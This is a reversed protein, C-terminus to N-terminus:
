ICYFVQKTFLDMEGRGQLLHLQVARIYSDYWFKNSKVCWNCLNLALDHYESSLLLQIRVHFMETTEGAEIFALAAFLFNM